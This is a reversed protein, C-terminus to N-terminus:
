FRLNARLGPMVSTDDNANADELVQLDATVHFWPTWAMNYYLEVGQTNRIPVVGSLLSKFDSSLENYFYGIGLSDQERCAFLGNAQLAVNGSWRYPNPDGDAIMWQSMLRVNRQDNCCDSWLVQDLIYSITWSGTQQGPAVIGQGPIVTWSTPDVSTYTRSSWNGLLAHSGPRGRWETFIRGYGLVVAGQDFLDDLGATTSSNTTDYVLLASQIQGEHLGMAGAGNISLNTTRIIPTPAILSLNMFGNIGRGTNPYIMNWLDLLNYKGATLAFNESLAQMFMLGTIATDHEGPLPYFMNSNPFSLAGGATNIDDGYRTEAHLIASFGKNLGLKEGQFTFMYDGKGGYLFRQRRGGSAVGQYFQTLQIDAIVGHEALGSRAGFLDGTLYERSFLCESFEYGCDAAGVCDDSLCDGAASEFCAEQGTVHSIPALEADAFPQNSEVMTELFPSSSESVSFEVQEGAFVPPYSLSMSLLAFSIVASKM